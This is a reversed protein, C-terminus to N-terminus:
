KLKYDSQFPWEKSFEPLALREEPTYPGWQSVNEITAVVTNQYTGYKGNPVKDIRRIYVNEIPNNYEDMKVHGRPADVELAKWAKNLAKIDNYDAGSAIVESLAKDLFLGTLYAGESPYAPIASYEKQYLEVFADMAPTGLAASYHLASLIGIGADGIANIMAEDTVSATATIPKDIGYNRIEQLLTAGNGGVVGSYVADVDKPIAAVYAGFDKQTMPVWQIDVIKGGLKEFAIKLAGLQEYQFAYDNAIAALTKIGATNYLYEAFAWMPQGSTWSVRFTYDNALHQTLAEASVMSMVYPVKKEVAYTSIALGQNALGCGVLIDVKDAEVLKQAKTVAVAPDSASDEVVYEVKMGAIKQDHEKLYLTWGNKMFLGMSAFNGTLDALFGVKYVEPVNGKPAETAGPTSTAAPTQTAAPPTTTSCAVLAFLTLFTLAICVLKKFNLRM